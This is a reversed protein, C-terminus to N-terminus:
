TTTCTAASAGANEQRFVRMDGECSLSELVDPTDDTSGDDVVIIEIDPWDQARVSAIAEPLFRALNYTPIVVSVGRGSSNRM